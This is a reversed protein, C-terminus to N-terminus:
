LMRLDAYRWGSVDGYRECRLFQLAVHLAHRAHAHRDYLMLAQAAAMHDHHTRGRRRIRRGRPDGLWFGEGDGGCGLVDGEFATRWAGQEIGDVAQQLLEATAPRQMARLLLRDGTQCARDFKLRLLVGWRKPRAAIAGVDHGPVIRLRVVEVAAQLSIAGEDVPHSLAAGITKEENAMREVRLQGNGLQERLKFTAADAELVAAVNHRQEYRARQKPIMRLVERGRGATRAAIVTIEARTMRRGEGGGAGVGHAAQLLVGLSRDQV